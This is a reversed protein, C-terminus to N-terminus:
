ATRPFRNCLKRRRLSLSIAGFGLLMMAWTAPEPVGGTVNFSNSSASIAYGGVQGFRIGGDSFDYTVSTGTLLDGSRNVLLNYVGAGYLYGFTLQNLGEELGIPGFNYGFSQTFPTYSFGSPYTSLCGAPSGSNCAITSRVGNVTGFVGVDFVKVTAQAPMAAFLLSLSIAITSSRM